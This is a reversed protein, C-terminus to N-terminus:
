LNRLLQYASVCDKIYNNIEQSNSIYEEVGIHVSIDSEGYFCPYAFIYIFLRSKNIYLQHIRYLEKRIEERLEKNIICGYYHSLISDIDNIYNNILKKDKETIYM